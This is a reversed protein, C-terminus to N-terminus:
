SIWCCSTSNIPTSNNLEVQVKSESKLKNNYRLLLDQSVSAFAENIGISKKASTESYAAGISDAYSKAENYSVQRKLDTKNGVVHVVPSIDKPCYKKIEDSWISLNNFSERNSVDYVMFAGNCGRYYGSVVTKFREQGATDWVQLKVKKGDM